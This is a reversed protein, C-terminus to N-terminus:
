YGDAALMAGSNGASVLADVDRAKARDFCLRMASGKKQRVVTAVATWPAILVAAFGVLLLLNSLFLWVALLVLGGLGAGGYSESLDSIQTLYVTYGLSLVAGTHGKLELAGTGNQGNREAM